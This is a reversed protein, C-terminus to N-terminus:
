VGIFVNSSGQVVIDRCDVVSGIHAAARRNVFVTPSGQTIIRNTHSILRDGAFCFHSFLNSGVTAAARSNVFVNPSGKLIATPPMKCEVQEGITMDGIRAIAKKM